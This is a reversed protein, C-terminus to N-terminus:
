VCLIVVLICRSFLSCTDSILIEIESGAYGLRVALEKREDEFNEVYGGGGLFNLEFECVLSACTIKVHTSPSFHKPARM